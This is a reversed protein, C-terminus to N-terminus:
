VDYKGKINEPTVNYAKTFEDVVGGPVQTSVWIELKNSDYWSAVCNM